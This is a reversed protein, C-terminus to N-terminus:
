VSQFMTKVSMARSMTIPLMQLPESSSVRLQKTGRFCKFSTSVVWVYMHIRKCIILGIREIKLKSTELVVM